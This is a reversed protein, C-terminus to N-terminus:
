VIRHKQCVLVDGVIVDYYGWLAVINTANVNVHQQMLKGEEHVVMMIEKNPSKIFEIPGNVVRRLEEITYKWGNAPKVEEISGNARYISDLNM